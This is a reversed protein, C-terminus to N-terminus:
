KNKLKNILADITINKKYDKICKLLWILCFISMIIFLAEWTNKDLGFSDKFETTVVVILLTIFIGLPTPWKNNQEIHAIHEKLIIRTRDETIEIIEQSLNIHREIVQITSKTDYRLSTKEIM